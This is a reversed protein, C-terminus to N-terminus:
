NTFHNLFFQLNGLARQKEELEQVKKPLYKLNTQIRDEFTKRLRPSLEHIAYYSLREGFMKPIDILVEKFEDPDVVMFQEPGVQRVILFRSEWDELGLFTQQEHYITLQKGIVDSTRNLISM